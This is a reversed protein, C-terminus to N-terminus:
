HSTAARDAADGHAAQDRSVVCVADVNYGPTHACHFVAVVHLWDQPLRVYEGKQPVRSLELRGVEIGDGMVVAIQLRGANEM